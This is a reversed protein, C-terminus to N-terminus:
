EPIIAKFILDFQSTGILPELEVFSKAMAIFEAESGERVLLSNSNREVTSRWRKAQANDIFQTQPIIKRAIKIQQTITNKSTM